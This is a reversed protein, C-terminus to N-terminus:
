NGRWTWELLVGGLSIGDERKRASRIKNTEEDRRNKDRIEL